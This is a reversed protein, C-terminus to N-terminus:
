QGFTYYWGLNLWVQHSTNFLLFNRLRYDIGLEIKNFKNFSFGFLPILRLETEFEIDENIGFLYENNFKLYPEKANIKTGSLPVLFTIRYRLRAEDYGNGTFTQDSRIRHGLEFKEFEKVFTYQQISRYFFRDNRYRLLVSLNVAQNPRTKYSAGAQFDFLEFGWNSQMRGTSDTAFSNIRGELKGNIKWSNNLKIGYNWNPLIGIGMDLQGYGNISCGLLIFIWCKRISM